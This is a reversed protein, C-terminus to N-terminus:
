KGPSQAAFFEFLQQATMNKCDPFVSLFFAVIHRGSNWPVPQIEASLRLPFRVAKALVEGACPHWTDCCTYYKKEPYNYGFFSINNKGCYPCVQLALKEAMRDMIWLLHMHMANLKSGNRMSEILFKQQISLWGFDRFILDELSKGIREGSKIFYPKTPVYENEPM